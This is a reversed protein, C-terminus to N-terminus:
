GSRTQGDKDASPMRPCCGAFRRSLCLMQAPTMHRLFARGIANAIAPLQAPDPCAMLLPLHIPQFKAKFALLSRFGYAAVGAVVLEQGEVRDARVAASASAGLGLGLFGPGGAFLDVGDGGADQGEGSGGLGEQDDGGCVGAHAPAFEGAQAAFAAVATSRIRESAPTPQVISQNM